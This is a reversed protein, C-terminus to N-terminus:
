SVTFPINNLIFLEGAKNSLLLFRITPLVVRHKSKLIIANILKLVLWGWGADEQLNVQTVAGSTENTITLTKKKTRRKERGGGRPDLTLRKLFM